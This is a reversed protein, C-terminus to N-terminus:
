ACEGNIYGTVLENICAYCRNSFTEEIPNCPTTICQIDIIGCVPELVDDCAEVNEYEPPCVLLDCDEPCSGSFSPPGLCGPDANPGCRGEINAEGQECINNGCIADNNNVEIVQFDNNCYRETTEPIQEVVPAPDKCLAPEGGRAENCGFCEIEGTETNQM